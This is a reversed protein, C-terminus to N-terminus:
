RDETLFVTERGKPPRLDDLLNGRDPSYTICIRQIDERAAFYAAIVAPDWQMGAGRELISELTALPMGARYPRDSGMADYSDAVAIIRAMLPIEEGALGDPYGKGSFAEHHSRVGPLVRKLNKLGSLINYGIIPHRQIHQMEEETLQGPKRLVADDVGIKGIDHILGALYIDQLEVEPLQLEEALRRAILAVRESHGRTYPDKADLSSVLSHVFSILLSDHQHYLEVNRSHTALIAAISSLLRIEGGRFEGKQLNCCYIWGYRNPGESIRVLAFNKLGPMERGLPSDKLRNKILPRSWDHDEYKAVMQALALEDIAFDGHTLLDGQSSKGELWIGWSEAPIMQPIQTLCMEALERPERSVQLNQTLSHLLTIENFAAEAEGNLRDIEIQLDDDDIRNYGAIASRFLRTALETQAHPARSQAWDRLQESTWGMQCASIILEAPCRGRESLIYGAAVYRNNEEVTLPIQVFCVEGSCRRISPESLSPLQEQLVEPLWFPHPAPIQAAVVRGRQDLITLPIGTADYYERALSLVRESIPRVGQAMVPSPADLM